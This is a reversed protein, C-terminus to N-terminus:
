KSETFEADIVDDGSEGSGSGGGPTAGSDGGPAAGAEAGAQQYVSAGVTYLEQQLEELLTKMADYDDKETAEKLKLRKEELKAKADADVKDGLEGMQTEAQNKLDIKERKEKDASANAEADKVMKDVESDSLTSAGTISISQEKGSGKDKATVSLIGNADIDFTVEIQPVGRPASPIGDLRFTGLSKNDSAGM